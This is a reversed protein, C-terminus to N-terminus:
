FFATIADVSSVDEIATRANCEVTKTGDERPVYKWQDDSWVTEPVVKLGRFVYTGGIEVEGETFGWFRLPGVQVGDMDRGFVQMYPEQSNQTSKEEAQIVQLVLHVFTGLASGGVWTWTAFSDCTDSTHYPFVIPTAGANPEMCTRIETDKDAFLMGLRGTRSRVNLLNLLSGQQNAGFLPFNGDGYWVITIIYGDKGVYLTQSDEAKDKDKGKKGKDKGKKGKEKGKGGGKGFSRVLKSISLARVGLLDGSQIIVGSGDCLEKASIEARKSAQMMQGGRTAVRELAGEASSTRGELIQSKLKQKEDQLTQAEKYHAGAVKKTIEADLEVLRELKKQVDAATKYDRREVAERMLADARKKVTEEDDHVAAPEHVDGAPQNQIERLEAEITQQEDQLAQADKYKAEAVCKKIEAEIAALRERKAKTDADKNYRRKKIADQVELLEALEEQLVRQRDHLEVARAFERRKVCEELEKDVNGIELKLEGARGSAVDKAPRVEGLAMKQAQLEAAGEYNARALCLRIDQELRAIELERDPERNKDSLLDANTRTKPAARKTGSRLTADCSKGQPGVIAPAAGGRAAPANAGGARQEAHVGQARMEESPRAAYPDEALERIEIQLQAARALDRKELCERLEERKVQCKDVARQASVAAKFDRSEVCERLRKSLVEEEAEGVDLVGMRPRAPLRPANRVTQKKSLTEPHAGKDELPEKKHAAMDESPVSRPVKKPPASPDSMNPKPVPSGSGRTRKRAQNAAPALAGGRAGKEEGSAGGASEDGAAKPRVVGVEEENDLLGQRPLPPAQANAGLNAM